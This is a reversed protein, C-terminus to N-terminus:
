YYKSNPKKEKKKLLNSKMHYLEIIKTYNFNINIKEFSIYNPNGKLYWPHTIYSNLKIYGMRYNRIKSETIEVLCKM